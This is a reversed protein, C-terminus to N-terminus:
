SRRIVLGNLGAVSLVSVQHATHLGVLINGREANTTTQEWSSWSQKEERWWEEKEGIGVGGRRRNVDEM